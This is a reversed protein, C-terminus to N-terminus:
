TPPVSRCLTRGSSMAVSTSFKLKFVRDGKVVEVSQCAVNTNLTSLTAFGDTVIKEAKWGQTWQPVDDSYSDFFGPSTSCFSSTPFLCPSMM